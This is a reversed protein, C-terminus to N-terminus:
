FKFGSFDINRVNKAQIHFSEVEMFAELSVSQLEELKKELFVIKLQRKTMLRYPRKNKNLCEFHKSGIVRPVGAPSYGAEKFINRDLWIALERDTSVMDRIYEIAKEFASDAKDSFMKSLRANKRRGTHHYEMKGYYMCATKLLKGYKVIEPPKKIRGMAKEEAWSKNLEIMESPSLVTELERAPVQVKNNLRDLLTQIRSIKKNVINTKM